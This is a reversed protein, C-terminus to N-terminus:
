EIGKTYTSGKKRNESPYLPQLNNLANIIKPDTIGNNIYWSVPIIHDIHFSERSEWSMGDKFQSEIRHILEKETYGLADYTRSAKKKGSLKLVRRLLNKCKNRAKTIKTIGIRRAVGTKGKIEKTSYALKLGNSINRREEETYIKGLTTPKKGKLAASMRKRTEDSAKFGVRYTNNRSKAAIKAGRQMPVNHKKLLQNITNYACNYEKAIDRTSNDTNLYLELIRDIDQTSFLVKKGRIM